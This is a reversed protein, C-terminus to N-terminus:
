KIIMKCLLITTKSLFKNLAIHCSELSNRNKKRQSFISKYIYTEKLYLQNYISLIVFLLSHKVPTYNLSFTIHRKFDVYFNAICTSRNFKQAYRVYLEKQLFLVQELKVFRVSCSNEM